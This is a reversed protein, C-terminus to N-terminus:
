RILNLYKKDERLYWQASLSHYYKLRHPYLDKLNKQEHPDNKLWYIEQTKGDHTSIFKFDGDVLGWQQPRSNKHFFEKGQLRSPSFLSTKQSLITPYIDSINGNRPVRRPGQQFDFDLVLLFNRINEEYLYNRHTLNDAHFEGFAEGHDGTIFIRTDNLLNLEKLKMVLKSIVADTHRCASLYRAKEDKINENEGTFYPYHTSSTLFQLYFHETSRNKIKDLAVDLAQAEDIGWPNDRKEKKNEQDPDYTFDFGANAYFHDLREFSLGMSSVLMTSYQREKLDKAITPGIFKKDSFAFLSTKTPAVSSSIAMHSRTTGPYMSYLRDFIYMSQQRSHLFPFAEKNIENGKMLQLSGVSELIILITNKKSEAIQLFRKQLDLKEPLSLERSGEEVDPGGGVGQPRSKTEQSFGFLALVPHSTIKSPYWHYKSVYSLGILVFGIGLGLKKFRGSIAPRFSYKLALGCLALNLFFWLNTEILFSSFLYSLDEPHFGAIDLFSLHQHFVNFFLQNFCLYIMVIFTPWRRGTLLLLFSVFLYEFQGFLITWETIQSMFMLQLQLFLSFFFHIM